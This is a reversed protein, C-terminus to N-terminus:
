GSGANCLWSVQRSPKHCTVKQYVLFWLEYIFEHNGMFEHIFEVIFEKGPCKKTCRFEHNKMFEQLIDRIKTWKWPLSWIPFWTQLIYYFYLSYHIWSIANHIRTHFAYRGGQARCSWTWHTGDMSCSSLLWWGWQWCTQWHRNPWFVTGIGRSSQNCASSRAPHLSAEKYSSFCTQSGSCDM